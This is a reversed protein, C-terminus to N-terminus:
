FQKSWLLGALAQRIVNRADESFAGPIVAAYFEKAESRRHSLQKDFDAGFAGPGWEPAEDNLRMQVRSSQGAALTLLYHAAAKTGVREPNV